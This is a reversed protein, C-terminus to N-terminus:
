EYVSYFSSKEFKDKYKLFQFGTQLKLNGSLTSGFVRITPVNKIKSKRFESFTLDYPTLPSAQYSDASVLRVSFM